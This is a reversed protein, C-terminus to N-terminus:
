PSQMDQDGVASPREVPEVVRRFAPSFAARFQNRLGASEPRPDLPFLRFALAHVITYPRFLPNKGKAHSLTLIVLTHGIVLTHNMVLTHHIVLGQRRPRLP